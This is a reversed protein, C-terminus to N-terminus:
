RNPGSGRGFPNTSGSATVSEIETLALSSIVAQVPTGDILFRTIEFDLSEIFCRRIYQNQGWIFTYTPPRKGKAEGKSAFDLAKLFKGIYKEIVNEGTEYTDFKIDSISLTRSCPGKFSIKPDGAETRAATEADLDISQSFSLSTPNFQFEIDDSEDSKLIAKELKGTPIPSKSM